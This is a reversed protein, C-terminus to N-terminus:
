ELANDIDDEILEEEIEQDECLFSDDKEKM